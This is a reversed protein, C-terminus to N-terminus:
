FNFFNLLQTKFKKSWFRYWAFITATDCRSFRFRHGKQSTNTWLMVLYLTLFRVRYRPGNAIFSSFTGIFYFILKELRDSLFKVLNLPIYLQSIPSPYFSDLILPEFFNFGKRFRFHYSLYVRLDNMTEYIIEDEFNIKFHARYFTGFWIKHSECPFHGKLRSPDNRFRM